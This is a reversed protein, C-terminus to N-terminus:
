TRKQNGIFRRLFAKIPTAVELDAFFGAVSSSSVQVRAVRQLDLPSNVGGVEMLSRHGEALAIRRTAADHDGFPYAASAVPGLAQSLQERADRLEARQQEESLSPLSPHSVTHNGFSFGQERMLQIENWDLYLRTRRALASAEVGTVARLADRLAEMRSAMDCTRLRELVTRISAHESMGVARAVTRRADPGQRLLWNMENVWIMAPNGIVSTVLYAVAPMASEALLPAAHEFISRYGDDFTIVLAREPVEGAELQELSIVRYHRQVFRLHRAFADPTISAGLERTFDSESPEIAHYLLVKPRARNLYIVVRALGLYYVAIGLWRLVAMLM